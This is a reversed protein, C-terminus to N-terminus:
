LQDEMERISDPLIPAEPVPEAM